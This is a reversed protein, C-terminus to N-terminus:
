ATERGNFSEDRGVTIWSPDARGRVISRGSSSGYTNRVNSHLDQSDFGNQESESDDESALSFRNQARPLETNLNVDKFQGSPLEVPAQRRLPAQTSTYHGRNASTYARKPAPIATSSPTQTWSNPYPSPNSIRSTTYQIGSDPQSPDNFELRRTSTGTGTGPASYDVFGGGTGRIVQQTTPQPRSFSGAVSAIHERAWSRHTRSSNLDRLAIGQTDESYHAQEPDHARTRRRRRVIYTSGAVISGAILVGLVLGILLGIAPM